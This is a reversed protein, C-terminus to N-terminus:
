RKVAEVGCFINPAM